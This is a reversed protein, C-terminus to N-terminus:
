QRFGPVQQVAAHFTRDRESGISGLEKSGLKGLM